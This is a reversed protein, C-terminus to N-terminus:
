GGERIRSTRAKEEAASTTEKAEEKREKAVMPGRALRTDEMEGVGFGELRYIGVARM